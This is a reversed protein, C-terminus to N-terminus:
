DVKKCTLSSNLFWALDEKRYIKKSEDNFNLAECLRCFHYSKTGFFGHENVVKFNNRWLHLSLYLDLDETLMLIDKAVQEANKKKEIYIYSNPPLLTECDEKSPGFIVPVAGKSYAHFFVKETLYQFCNSNELALYFLYSSIPECDAKIHGPCSFFFFMNQLNHLHLKSALEELRKGRYFILWTAKM